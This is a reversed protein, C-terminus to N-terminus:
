RPEKEKLNFNEFIQVEDAMLKCILLTNTLENNTKQFTAWVMYLIYLFMIGQLSILWKHKEEMRWATGPVFEVDCIETWGPILGTVKKPKARFIQSEM